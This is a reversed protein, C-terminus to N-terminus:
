CRAGSTTARIRYIKRSGFAASRVFPGGDSLVETMQRPTLRVAPNEIDTAGYQQAVKLIDALSGNPLQVAAVGTVQNDEWPQRTMLVVPRGLCDQERQLPTILTAVNEGFHNNIRVTARTHNALSLLPSGLLVICSIATLAPHLRARGLQVMAAVVLIPVGTVMGKLLAGSGAVVPAVLADFLFATLLFGAPVLWGSRLMLLDRLRCRQPHRGRYSGFVAGGILMLVLVSGLPTLTNVAADLQLNVANVRLLAFQKWGGGLLADLSHDVHPAFLNEYSTIFPFSTAAPPVPSGFHALNTLLYPASVPLYGALLLGVRVYWRSVETWLLAAIGIVVCLLLGESRSMAAFAAFVGVLPWLAVRRRAYSATAMAAIAFAGLYVSSEAQLAYSSVVPQVQMVMVSAAPVWPVDSFSRALAYTGACMLVIMAINMELAAPLGRGFSLALAMLESPLPLWYDFAYHHLPTGPM